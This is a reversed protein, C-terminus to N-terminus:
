EIWVLQGSDTTQYGGLTAIRKQFSDTRVINLLEQSVATEFVAQPIVLQYTEYALPIFDLGCAAAAALIGLGATAEGDQIAEAVEMHTIRSNEYGSIEAPQLGIRRLQADLWVRTGSGDQRNIWVIGDQGIDELSKVGQPNGLPLMLGLSRAALTVLATRQGPLVRRVYPANYEDNQEDWLHSGAIDAEGRVLAILGGLSGRYSIDLQYGGRELLMERLIDLSLDHSGAFRIRTEPVARKEPERRRQLRQWRELSEAFATRVETESYGQGLLNLLLSEVQNTLVASRLLSPQAPLPNEAVRTGGGRRSIVLGEDALASYARGVTGPTCQWQAAMRRVPPLRDGPQLDGRAIQLRIAEAIQEFLYAEGSM